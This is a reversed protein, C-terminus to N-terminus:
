PGAPPPGGFLDFVASLGSGLQGLAWWLASALAALAAATRAMRGIDGRRVGPALPSASYVVAPAYTPFVVGSGADAPLTVVVPDPVPVPEPRWRVPSTGIVSFPDAPPDETVLRVRVETAAAPSPEGIEELWTRATEPEVDLVRAVARVTSTSPLSDGREWRTVDSTRAGIAAALRAQTWGLEFRRERLSQGFRTRVSREVGM